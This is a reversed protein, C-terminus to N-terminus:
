ALGLEAAVGAAASRSGVDLARLLASVHVRVTFPSIGLDRAIEKNSLGQAVLRLVERQRTSLRALRDAPVIDAEGLSSETKVVIDGALLAAIGSAMESSSVGKAIFGDAGAAMVQAVMDADCTMSVVLLTTTPYDRRLVRISDPGEFGPFVLDLVLMGPAEGDAAARALDGATGVEAILAEPVARQVIRRMGDRFIPHDDAIIIRDTMIRKRGTGHRDVETHNGLELRVHPM